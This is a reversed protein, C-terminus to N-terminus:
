IRPLSCYRGNRYIRLVMKGSFIIKRKFINSCKIDNACIKEQLLFSIRDVMEDTKLFLDLKRYEEENIDDWNNKAYISNNRISCLFILMIIISFIYRKM